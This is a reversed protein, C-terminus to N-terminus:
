IKLSMLMPRLVFIMLFDLTMRLALELRVQFLHEAITLDAM